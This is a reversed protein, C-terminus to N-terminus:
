YINKNKFGLLNIIIYTFPTENPIEHNRTGSLLKSFNKEESSEVLMVVM